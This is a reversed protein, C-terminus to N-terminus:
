YYCWSDTIPASLYNKDADDEQKFFIGTDWLSLKKFYFLILRILAILLSCGKDFWDWHLLVTKEVIPFFKWELSFKPCVRHFKLEM